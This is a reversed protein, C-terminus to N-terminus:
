VYLASGGRRTTSNVNDTYLCYNRINFNYNVSDYDIFHTEQIAAILPKNHLIYNKFEGWHSILSSTNWQIFFEPHSSNM